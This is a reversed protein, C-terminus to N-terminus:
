VIGLSYMEIFDKLRNVWIQVAVENQIVNQRVFFEWKEVLVNNQLANAKSNSFVYETSCRSSKFIAQGFSNFCM